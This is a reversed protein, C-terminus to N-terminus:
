KQQKTKIRHLSDKLKPSYNLNEPMNQMILIM